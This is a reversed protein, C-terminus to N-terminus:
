QDKGPEFYIDSEDLYFSVANEIAGAALAVLTQSAEMGNPPSLDIALLYKLPRYWHQPFDLDNATSDLDDLPRLYSIEIVDTADNPRFDLHLRMRDTQRLQYYRTPKGTQAHSPLAMYEPELMERMVMRIGDSNELVAGLIKVPVDATNLDGGSFIDFTNKTTVLTIDGRERQWAKFGRYISNEPGAMNKVLYNLVRMGLAMDDSNLSQGVGPIGIETYAATVLDGATVNYNTSGSLAM